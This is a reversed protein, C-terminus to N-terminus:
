VCKLRKVNAEVNSLWRNNFTHSIGVPCLTGRPNQRGRIKLIKSFDYAQCGWFYKQSKPAEAPGFNQFKQPNGQNRLNEEARWRVVCM